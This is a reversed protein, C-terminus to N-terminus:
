VLEMVNNRSAGNPRDIVLCVPFILLYQFGACLCGKMQCLVQTVPDATLTLIGAPFLRSVPLNNYDVCLSILPLIGYRHGAHGPPLRSKGAVAQSVPERDLICPLVCKYEM